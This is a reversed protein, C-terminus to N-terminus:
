KMKLLEAIEEDTLGYSPKIVIETMLGTTQEKARVSLLGDADIQFMIELRAIGAPLKPIGRLEFRALSRCHEVRDAEGQLVHIVFGTQGDKQTTFNYVHVAPIPTNRPMITEALGDAVELKLSLPTVDLLLDSTAHQLNYAQQAAGMAVVKEPDLHDIPKKGFAAAIAAKVQPMHTAGGVLIIETLDHSNIGAYGLALNFNKLTEDILGATAIKFEDATVVAEVGLFEGRWLSNETLSEKISKCAQLAQSYSEIELKYKDALLGLLAQDFDDGGLNTNGATALVQLIGKQMRLISVDFTGGGLDYVAYTGSEIGDFGYAIAAATPESLMRAVELGALHAADKTAQRASENFYAPVTIVARKVSVGLEFEALKKLHVLIESSIETPTKLGAPSEFRLVKSDEGKAYINSEVMEDPAQGMYRKISRFTGEKEIVAIGVTVIGGNEYSVASPILVSGGEGFFRLADESKYAILSNTTGLDIGVIVDKSLSSAHQGPESIDFM